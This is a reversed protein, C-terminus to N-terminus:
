VDSVVMMGVTTASKKVWRGGGDLRGSSNSSSHWVRAEIVVLVAIRLLSHPRVRTTTMTM